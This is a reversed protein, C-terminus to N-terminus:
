VGKAANKKRLKAGLMKVAEDYKAETIQDVLDIGFHELFKEENAESNDLLSRLNQLRVAGVPRELAELASVYKEDDFKGLFVDANFGLQSLGKSVANTAAKKTCDDDVKTYGNDGRTKYMAKVASTIPFSGEKEQWQYWLTANYVLLTDNDGLEHFTMLADRVGWGIGYPGFVETAKQRQYQPDIATIRRGSLNANKVMNHDTVCVSEWLKLNENSM